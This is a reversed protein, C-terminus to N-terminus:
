RPAIASRRRRARRLMWWVGAAFGALAALLTSGSGVSAAAGGAGSADLRAALWVASIPVVLNAAIWLLAAFVACVIGVVGAKVYIM